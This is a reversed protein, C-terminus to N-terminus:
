KAGGKKSGQEIMETRPKSGSGSILRWGFLADLVFDGVLILLDLLM